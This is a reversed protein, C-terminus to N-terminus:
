SQYISGIKQTYSIMGTNLFITFLRICILIKSVLNRFLLAHVKNETSEYAYKPIESSKPILDYKSNVYKCFVVDLGDWFHLKGNIEDKEIFIESLSELIKFISLMVVNLKNENDIKLMRFSTDVEELILNQYSLAKLMEHNNPFYKKLPNNEFHTKIKNISEWVYFLYKQEFCYSIEKKFNEYHRNTESISYNFEPSEKVYYSSAGRKLAANINWIKNSATSVIIQYGENENLFEEILKYGSFETPSVMENDIDEKEPNM